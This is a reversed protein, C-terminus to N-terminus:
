LQIGTGNKAPVIPAGPTPVWFPAPAVAPVVPPVPAPVVIPAPVVPIVPAPVIMIVPAPAPAPLVVVPAPPVPTRRRRWWRYLRALAWILIAFGLLIGILRLWFWQWNDTRRIDPHSAIDANHNGVAEGVKEDTRRDARALGTAFEERTVATKWESSEPTTGATRGVLIGEKLCFAVENKGWTSAGSKLYGLDKLMQVLQSSTLTQKIVKQETLFRNTIHVENVLAETREPSPSWTTLTEINEAAIALQECAPTGANSTLEESRAAVTAAFFIVMLTVLAIYKM